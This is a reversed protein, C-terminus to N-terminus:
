SFVCVYLSVNLVVVEQDIGLYKAITPNAPAIIASATSAALALMSLQFTLWSRYPTSWNHPNDPDNPEWDVVFAKEDHAPDAEDLDPSELAKEEDAEARNPTSAADDQEGGAGPMDVTAGAHRFREVPRVITNICFFEAPNRRRHHDPDAAIFPDSAPAGQPDRSKHNTIFVLQLLTLCDSSSSVPRNATSMPM